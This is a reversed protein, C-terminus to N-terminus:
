LQVSPKLENNSGHVEKAGLKQRQMPHPTAQSSALLRCLIYRITPNHVSSNSEIGNRIWWPNRSNREVQLDAGLTMCDVHMRQIINDAMCIAELYVMKYPMTFVETTVHCDTTLLHVVFINSTHRPVHTHVHANVHLDEITYLLLM